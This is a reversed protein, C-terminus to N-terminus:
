CLMHYYQYSVPAQRLEILMVHPSGPVFDPSPSPALRAVSRVLLSDECAAGTTPAEAYRLLASPTLRFWRMPSGHPPELSAGGRLVRLCGSHLSSLPPHGSPGVAGIALSHEARPESSRSDRHFRSEIFKVLKHTNIDDHGALIM